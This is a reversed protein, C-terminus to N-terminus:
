HYPSWRSRCEKGVRREESRNGARGVVKLNTAHKYFEENIKTVSRVVIADYEPIIKLLEEREIDFRVDVDFDPVAQLLAVGKDSIKETVIIKM